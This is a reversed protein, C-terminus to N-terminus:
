IPVRLPNGFGGRHAGVLLARRREVRDIPKPWGKDVGSVLALAAWSQQAARPPVPPTHAAAFWAGTLHRARLRQRSRDASRLNWTRPSGAVSGFFGILPSDKLSRARREIHRITGLRATDPAIPHPPLRPMGARRRPSM